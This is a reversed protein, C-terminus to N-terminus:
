GRVFAGKEIGWQVKFVPQESEGKQGARLGVPVLAMDGVIGSARFSAWVHHNHNKAWM